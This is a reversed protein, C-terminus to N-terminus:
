ATMQLGASLDAENIGQMEIKGAYNGPRRWAPFIKDDQEPRPAAAVPPRIPVTHRMEPLSPQVLSTGHFYEDLPFLGYPELERFTRGLKNQIRYVTHFFNGRDLGLRRCCLRWDAGLLYHFKFVRHEEEDLVRRSVLCFDAVYEEDKRGWIMRSTGGRTFELSVRSM